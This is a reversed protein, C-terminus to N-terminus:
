DGRDGILCSAVWAGSFRGEGAGECGLGGVRAEADVLGDELRM